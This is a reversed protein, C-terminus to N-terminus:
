VAGEAECAAALDGGGAATLVEILLDLYNEEAEPPHIRIRM